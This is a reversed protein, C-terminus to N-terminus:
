PQFGTSAHPTVNYAYVLSPLYVPWNPKQECNLTRMLGFLTHNFRECQSNGRTNYPMTTSQKIDHMKCLHSIIEYNFSRGQDSHIRAPIGFVNFWREVLIKAVTLSKQNNTWLPRVISLSPMLLFLFTRRAERLLM